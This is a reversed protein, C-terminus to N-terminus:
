QFSDNKFCIKLRKINIDFHFMLMNGAWKNGSPAALTEKLCTMDSPLWRFLREPM